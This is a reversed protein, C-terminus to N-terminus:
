FTIEVGPPLITEVTVVEVTIVTVVTATALESVRITTRVINVKSTWFSTAV